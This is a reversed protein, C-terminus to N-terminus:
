VTLKHGDSDAEKLKKQNEVKVQELCYDIVRMVFAKNTVKGSNYDIAYGFIEYMFDKNNGKEFLNEILHRINREVRSATSDYKEAIETYEVKVINMELIYNPDNLTKLTAQCILERLMYFGKIGTDAGLQLLTNTILEKLEGVTVLIEM